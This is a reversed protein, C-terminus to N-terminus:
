KVEKVVRQTYDTIKYRAVLEEETLVKAKPAEQEKSTM